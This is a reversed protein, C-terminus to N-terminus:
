GMVPVPHPITLKHGILHDLAQVAQQVQVGSVHGGILGDAEWRLITSIAYEQLWLCGDHGLQSALWGLDQGSELWHVRGDAELLPVAPTLISFRSFSQRELGLGLELSLNALEAHLQTLYHQLNHLGAALGSDPDTEELASQLLDLPPHIGVFRGIQVQQIAAAQAMTFALRLIGAYHLPSGEAQAAQALEMTQRIENTRILLAESIQRLTIGFAAHLLHDLFTRTAALMEALFESSPVKISHQADNRALHLSRMESKLVPADPEPFEQCIAVVQDWLRFFGAREVQFEQARLRAPDAFYLGPSGNFSKPPPFTQIVGELLMEVAHDLSTITIIKDITASSRAHEAGHSYLQKVLALRKMLAYDTTDM